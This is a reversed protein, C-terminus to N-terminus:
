HRLGLVLKEDYYEVFILVLQSSHDICPKQTLLMWLLSNEEVTIGRDIPNSIRWGQAKVLHGSELLSEILYNQMWAKEVNDEIKQTFEQSEHFIARAKIENRSKHLALALSKLSYAIDGNNELNKAVEEAKILLLDGIQQHGINAMKLALKCIHDVRYRRNEKVDIEVSQNFIINAETKYGVQALLAALHCLAIKKSWSYEIALAAKKAQTFNKKAEDEHGFKVLVSAWIGLAKSYALPYNQEIKNILKQAKILDGKKAILEMLTIFVEIREVDREILEAVSESENFNGVQALAVALSVLAIDRMPDNTSNAILAAENFIQNTDGDFGTQLFAVALSSLAKVKFCVNKIDLILKQAQTCLGAEALTVVLNSLAEEFEDISETKRTIEEAKTFIRIGEEKYELKILIVALEGLYEVSNWNEEIIESLELMEKLLFLNPSGKEELAKYISLLGKLKQCLNCRLRAYNLAEVERDLWVLTKLDTDDYRNVRQNVIQRATHLQVLIVLQEPKLSDTFDNIALELDAVYGADGICAIYKAEMWDPSQTLLRYLEDKRGSEKLHYALNQFFYGDNIGTHWGQSCHKKYATLLRNHLISLDGAQKRVYDYQLDHLTLCNQEDRRILSREVLLDIVDQTDFKDLGESEWFTQLVVEPIPTDEPFVAFDLYRKQLDPELAEVSVQIAKLLNPYSYDPFQYKIKELDANRLKYLVNEWRDPKDKLMAGIMALALPLKGCEEVIQNVEPPLTEPHQKAWLALLALSEPVTLVNVQHNVTGVEELVKIDRTTILMKCRQGLVNFAQADKTEWVDDIILLCTKNALLEGLYVKGQQVDQFIQSSDGLMKALDSQRLTLSPQQGLTVWLIGDPFVSRVEEDHALVAVLVSKGIGGMGQLGIRHSIGTVAVRQNENELLLSKIKNLEDPRPLFNLPQQPVQSLKGLIKSKTQHNDSKKSKEPRQSEWLKDFERLNKQKDKSWLTLGFHWHDKGKKHFRRDEYIDLDKLRNKIEYFHDDKELKGIEILFRIKTDIILKPRDSCEDEWRHQIPLDDRYNLVYSLLEELFRSTRQKVAHSWSVKPMFQTYYNKTFFNPFEWLYVLEWVRYEQNYM